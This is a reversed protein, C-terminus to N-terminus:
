KKGRISSASPRPCAPRIHVFSVSSFSSISTSQRSSSLLVSPYYWMCVHFVCVSRVFPICVYVYLLCAFVVDVSGCTLFLFCSNGAMPKRLMNGPESCMWFAYIRVYLFDFPESKPVSSFLFDFNGHVIM